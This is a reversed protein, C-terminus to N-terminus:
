VTWQTRLELTGASDSARHFEMRYLTRDTFDRMLISKPDVEIVETKGAGGLVSLTLPGLKWTHDGAPQPRCLTWIVHTIPVNGGDTIFHDTLLYGKGDDTRELRRRWQSLNAEPPYAASLDLELAPRADDAIWQVINGRAEAGVRQAQGNIIPCNHGRSSAVVYTYRKPGFFDTTYKMNGLEPIVWEEDCAVLFHGLDNHNHREGNNGGALASLLRDHKFIAVQQDELYRVPPHTPDPVGGGMAPAGLSRLALPVNRWSFEGFHTAWWRLFDNDAAEALWPVLYAPAGATFPADNGSYFTRGFLHVRRPYDAIQRFRDMDISQELEARSLRALGHCALGVGYNWYGMGEDCEGSATFCQDFFKALGAIARARAEPRPHGQAALSDCATLISGACVGLWNNLYRAERDAWGIFDGRGFPTLVRRDIEEIISDALTGSQQDMWPKLAERIEAFNGAMECSALDLTPTGSAPLDNKPLHASVTWTPHTLYAWLYDLLRDDPDDPNIGDLCRRVVLSAMKGRGVQWLQDTRNRDNFRKAALYDSAQPMAPAAPAEDAQRRLRAIPEANGPAAALATWYERDLISRVVFPTLQTPPM